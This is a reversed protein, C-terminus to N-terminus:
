NKLDEFFGDLKDVIDEVKEHNGTSLIDRVIEFKLQIAQQLGLAISALLFSLDSFYEQLFKDHWPVLQGSISEIVDSTQVLVEDNVAVDGELEVHPCYDLHFDVVEQAACSGVEAVAAPKATKDTSQAKSTKPLVREVM